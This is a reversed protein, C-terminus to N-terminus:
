RQSSVKVGAASITFSADTQAQACSIAGGASTCYLKGNALSRGDPLTVLVEEAVTVTPVGASRAWVAATGKQQPHADNGRSCFFEALGSVTVGSVKLPAGPCIRGAGPVGTRNMGDPFNCTADESTLSCRISGDPSAFDASRYGSVDIAGAPVGGASPSPTGSPEASSAPPSPPYVVTNVVPASCGGLVLVLAAVMCADRM